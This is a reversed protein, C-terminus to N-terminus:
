VYTSLIFQLLIKYLYVHYIRSFVKLGSLSELFKIAVMFLKRCVAYLTLGGDAWSANLYRKAPPRTTALKLIYLICVGSLM